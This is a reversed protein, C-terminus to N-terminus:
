SRESLIINTINMNNYTANFGKNENTHLIRNHSYDVFNRCSKTSLNQKLAIVFLAETFM